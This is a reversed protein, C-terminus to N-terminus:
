CLLFTLPNHDSVVTLTTAGHLYNRWVRLAHYVALLEEEYPSKNVDSNELKASEFAIPKGHQMLVAGM